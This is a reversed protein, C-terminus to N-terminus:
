EYTDCKIRFNSETKRRSFVIMRSSDTRFIKLSKTNNQLNQFTYWWWTMGFNPIRKKIKSAGAAGGTEKRIRKNIDTFRIDQGASIIISNAGTTNGVALVSSLDPVAGGTSNIILPDTDTGTGTITINAGAQINSAGGLTITEYTNNPLWRYMEPMVTNKLAYLFNANGRKPLVDVRKITYHGEERVM